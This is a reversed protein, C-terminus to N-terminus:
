PFCKTILTIANEALKQHLSPTKDNFGLKILISLALFTSSGNELHEADSITRRDDLGTIKLIRKDATCHSTGVNRKATSKIHLIFEIANLGSSHVETTTSISECRVICKQLNTILTGLQSPLNKRQNVNENFCETPISKLHAILWEAGQITGFSIFSDLLKKQM